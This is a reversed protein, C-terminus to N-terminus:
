EMGKRPQFDFNGWAEMREEEFGRQRKGEGIRLVTRTKSLKRLERYGCPIARYVSSLLVRPITFYRNYFTNDINGDYMYM